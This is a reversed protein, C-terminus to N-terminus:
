YSIPYLLNLEYELNFQKDTKEYEDSLGSLFVKIQEAIDDQLGNKSKRRFIEQINQNPCVNYSKFYENCWTAVIRTFDTEMCDHSYFGQIQKLFDSNTIMGTIIRRETTADSPRQRRIIAM